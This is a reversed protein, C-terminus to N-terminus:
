ESRRIGVTGSAEQYAAELGEKLQEALSPFIHSYTDLTVTASAHGLMQQVQKVNANMAIAISAASHRLDHFRVQEDLGAHRLAPKFHRTYFNNRRLVDGETSSFVLGDPGPCNKLQDTLLKCLFLPLPVTRHQGTKTPVIRIVGSGAETLAQRVDVTGRLLDLHEVRLGVLEGWRLGTFGAMLILARFRPDIADALSRIEDASLFRMEEKASKPLPIRRAPNRAIMRDNEAEQLIRALVRYANRVTGPGVGQAILESIWQQVHNRQIRGLAAKGFWPLIHLRLLLEYSVQTSPKLHVTSALWEGAFKAFGVKAREPDIWEGSHQDTEVQSLYLRAQAKTRFSRSRQRGLPDRYMAEYSGNKRRRIAV